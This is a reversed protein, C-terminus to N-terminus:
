LLDAVQHCISFARQTFVRLSLCLMVQCPKHNVLSQYITNSTASLLLFFPFHPFRTLRTYDVCETNAWVPVNMHRQLETHCNRGKAHTHGHVGANM